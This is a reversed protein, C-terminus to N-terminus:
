KEILQAVEKKPKSTTTRNSMYLGIFDMAHVLFEMSEFQELWDLYKELDLEAMNSQEAQKNMIFAMKSITDLEGSGTISLLLQLTDPDIDDLTLEEKGEEVAKQEIKILKTLQDTGISNIIGTISGLLEKKFIMRFRTSTTGCALFPFEKETGDALQLKIQRFM